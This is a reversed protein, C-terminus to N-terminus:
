HRKGYEKNKKLYKGFIDKIVEHHAECRIRNLMEKCYMSNMFWKYIGLRYLIARIYVNKFGAIPSVAKIYGGKVRETFEEWKAQLVETDSIANNIEKIKKLLADKDDNRLLSLSFNNKAQSIPVLEFQLPSGRHIKVRLVLGTYWSDPRLKSTTFLFNGLSYFIPTGDHIEYGGVCHTHHAVVLDAGSEAYFRYTEITMPSPYHNFEHGGHVIVIVQDAKEKANKIQRYNKIISVPNAGGSSKTASAWENEAFNVIALRGYDSEIFLTQEAEGINMGAGVTKLGNNSCFQITDRLGNDGFDLIHNNALSVINVNLARLFELTSTYDSKLCPGTKAIKKVSETVPAELNVINLDSKGFLEVLDSDLLKIDYNTDIVVDGAILIDM